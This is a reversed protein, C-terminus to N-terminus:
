WPSPVVQVALEHGVPAHQVTLPTQVGVVWGPHAPPLVKWPRAVTHAGFGQGCGDPAHQMEPAHEVLVCVVQEPLKWPAPVVHPVIVHGWGVPAHQKPVPQRVAAALSQALAPPTNWFPTAHLPLAQGVPAHQTTVVPAHEVAVGAAHV